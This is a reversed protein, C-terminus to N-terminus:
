VLLLPITPGEPAPHPFSQLIGATEFLENALLRTLVFIVSELRSVGILSAEIGKVRGCGVGGLQLAPQGRCTYGDLM